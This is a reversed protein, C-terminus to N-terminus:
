EAEYRWRIQGDAEGTQLFGTRVLTRISPLNDKACGAVVVRVNPQRLVWEVIAEAAEKAYGRRRRDSIVSYGIEVSGGDDPPGVFGIDGVVTGTEREIM